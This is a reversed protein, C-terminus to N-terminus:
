WKEEPQYIEGTKWDETMADLIEEATRPHNMISITELIGRYEEESMLVAAGNETDVHIIHGQLIASDMYESFNQYFRMANTTIM